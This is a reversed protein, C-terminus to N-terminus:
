QYSSANLAGIGLLVLVAVYRILRVVHDAPDSEPM